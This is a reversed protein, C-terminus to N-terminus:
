IFETWFFTHKQFCSANLDRGWLVEFINAYENANMRKRMTSQVHGYLTCVFCFFIALHFIYGGLTLTIRNQKVKEKQYKNIAQMLWAHTFKCWNLDKIKSVDIFAGMYKTSPKTNSTPCLFTALMVIMYCRIYQEDSLEEEKIIKNGFYKISPVESLGFLALFEAKGGDDTININNEGAPIGLVHSVSEANLTIVKQNFVIQEDKVCVNDAIWQAFPRPVVCEDFELTFGFGIGRVLQVKEKSKCTSKVVDVFYPLSCRSYAKAGVHGRPKNVPEEINRPRKTTQKRIIKRTQKREISKRVLNIVGDCLLSDSVETETLDDDIEQGQEEYLHQDDMDEPDRKEKFLIGHAKNIEDHELCTDSNHKDGHSASLVTVPGKSPLAGGSPDGGQKEMDGNGGRAAER